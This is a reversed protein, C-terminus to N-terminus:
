SSNLRVRPLCRMLSVSGSWRCSGVCLSEQPDQFPNSSRLLRRMTRSPNCIQLPAEWQAPTEVNQTSGEQDPPSTGCLPVPHDSHVSFGVGIGKSAGIAKELVFRETPHGLLM